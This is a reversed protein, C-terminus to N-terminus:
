EEDEEGFHQRELQEKFLRLRPEPHTPMTMWAVVTSRLWEPTLAWFKFVVSGSLFVPFVVVGVGHANEAQM